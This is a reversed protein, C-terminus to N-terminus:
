SQRESHVSAETDTNEPPRIPLQLGTPLARATRLTFDFRLTQRCERHVFLWPLHATDSDCCKAKPLGIGPTPGLPYHGFCLGCQTYRQERVVFRSRSLGIRRGEM